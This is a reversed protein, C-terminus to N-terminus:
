RAAALTVLDIQKLTSTLAAPEVGDGRVTVAFRDAVIISMEGSRARRDYREHLLQGDVKTTREYGTDTEKEINPNFKAALGAIGSLSALDVIEISISANAGDSYRATASSAKLGMAEGSQGSAEKRQMGPLSEPLMDKLKHFDVPQVNKGGAVIQGVAGLTANPDVQGSSKPSPNTAGGAKAIKETTQAQEGMKELAKLADNVRAKDADSKAGFISSLVNAAVDRDRARASSHNMAGLAGIGALGLGTITCTTLVGIVVWMVIACIVTVITYGISKDRPCRMLVPLGLYLLYLGYFAAIIGLIGLMPIINLVAAVWGPTFSYATVKLAALSDRQGGFSPALLDVILAILFVGVFTLVFSVIAHVLSVAIGLRGVYPLGVVSHGILTAIVGIAVLPAVYGLYIAGTSTSEAAVVPWEASPSLLINKVRAILGQAAAAAAFDGGPGSAANGLAAAPGPAPEPRPAVAPASVPDTSATAPQAPDAVSAGCFNCFKARDRVQKGCQACFMDSNGEFKAGAASRL